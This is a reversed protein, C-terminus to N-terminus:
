TEASESTDYFTEQKATKKFCFNFALSQLKQTDQWAM